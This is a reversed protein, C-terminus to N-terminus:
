EVIKSLALQFEEPNKKKYLFESAKRGLMETATWGYVGEAGKNWFLVHGELDKVFIADKTKDLLAAHERIQLATQRTETIDQAGGHIQIIRNQSSDWIPYAYNHLWCIENGRTLIRFESESPQGSFVQKIHREVLSIDAPYILKRWGMMKLEDLTYGSI